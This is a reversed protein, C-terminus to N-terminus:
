IGIVQVNSRHNKKVMIGTCKKFKIKNQEESTKSNMSKKGGWKTLGLISATGHKMECLINKMQTIKTSLKLREILNM